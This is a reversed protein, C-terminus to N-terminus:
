GTDLVSQLEALAAKVKRQAQRQTVFLMKALDSTSMCELYCVSLIRASEPQIQDLLHYAKKKLLYLEHTQQDIEQEMDRILAITDGMIDVNKSHTVHEQDIPVHLSTLRERLSNMRLVKMQISTEAAKISELFARADTM